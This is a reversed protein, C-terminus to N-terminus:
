GDIPAKLEYIYILLDDKSTNVKALSVMADRLKSKETGVTMENQLAKAQAYLTKDSFAMEIDQYKSEIAVYQVDDIYHLFLYIGANAQFDWGFSASSADNDEFQYDVDLRDIMKNEIINNSM